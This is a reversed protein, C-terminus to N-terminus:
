HNGMPSGSTEPLHPEEQIANLYHVVDRIQTQLDGEGSKKAAWVQYFRRGWVPMDRSHHAAVDQRGDFLRAIAPVTSSNAANPFIEEEKEGVGDVFRPLEV